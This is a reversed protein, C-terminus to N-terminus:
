ACELKNRHILYVWDPVRMSRTREIYLLEHFAQVEDERVEGRSLADRIKGELREYRCATSKHFRWEAIGWTFVPVLPMVLLLVNDMPVKYIVTWALGAVFVVLMARLVYNSWTSRLEIDWLCNWQQCRAVSALHDEEEMAIIRDPYWDKMRSRLLRDKRSDAKPLALNVQAQSPERRDAVRPWALDFIIGDAAERLEGAMQNKRRQESDFFFLYLFWAVFLVFVAISLSPGSWDGLRLLSCAAFGLLLVYKLSDFLKAETYRVSQAVLMNIVRASLQREKITM